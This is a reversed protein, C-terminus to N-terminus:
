CYALCEGLSTSASASTVQNGDATMCGIADTCLGPGGSKNLWPSATNHWVGGAGAAGCTTLAPLDAAAMNCVPLTPKTCVTTLSCDFPAVSGNLDLESYSKDGSTQAENVAGATYGNGAQLMTTGDFSFETIPNACAGPGPQNCMLGIYMHKGPLNCSAGPGNPGPGETADRCNSFPLVPFTSAM